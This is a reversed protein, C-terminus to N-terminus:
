LRLIITGTKTRSGLSVCSDGDEHSTRTGRNVPSVTRPPGPGRLSNSHAGHSHSWPKSGRATPTSGQGLTILASGWRGRPVSDAQRNWGDRQVGCRSKERGRKLGPPNTSVTEDVHEPSEPPMPKLTQQRRCRSSSAKVSKLSHLGTVGVVELRRIPGSNGSEPEDASIAGDAAQRSTEDPDDRTEPGGKGQRVTIFFVEGERRMGEKQPRLGRNDTMRVHDAM